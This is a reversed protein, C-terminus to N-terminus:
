RSGCAPPALAEIASGVGKLNYHGLSRCPENLAASFARSVVVPEDIEKTVSELRCTENAATGIVSFEIRTPVGINGYLVEGVHLALGFNLVELGQEGRHKNLEALQQRASRSAALADHAARAPSTDGAIPFVALVADGIFRLVEGGHELVAGATCGFYGNVATLFADVPMREAMATSDRLDSYWIVAPICEADGLRIQGDLVRAGADSGLYAAAVNRATHVHKTLKSVLALHPQVRRLAAIDAGSFGGSRDSIWSSVIGDQREFATDPEGFPTLLALYDTGGREAFEAFVPFRSRGEASDVRQRLERQRNALLWYLPSRLWVDPLEEAHPRQALELGDRRWWTLDISAVLPHLVRMSLHGRLLPMGTRYLRECFESFLEEAPTDGLSESVLWEIIDSCDRSVANGDGHVM